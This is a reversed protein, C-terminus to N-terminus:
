KGNIIVGAHIMKTQYESVERQAKYYAQEKEKQEEMLRAYERNEEETAIRINRM